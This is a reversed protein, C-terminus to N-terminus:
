WLLSAVNRRHALPELSTWSLKDLLVLYFSPAGACVHCCYEMCQRTISKYLYLAVKRSLFKISRILKWNEQLKLLLSLTLAGIRNLLSLWGCCRLLHNKRLFLGMWKRMLLVLTILGTLHFWNQKELMWCAVEQRLACHRMSWIWTWSGIRTTVVFWIGSWM